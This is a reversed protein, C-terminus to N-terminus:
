CVQVRDGHALRRGRFQCGEPEDGDDIADCDDADTDVCGVFEGDRCRCRVCRTFDVVEEGHRVAYEQGNLRYKCPEFVPIYLAVGTICLNNALGMTRQM